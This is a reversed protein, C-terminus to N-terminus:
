KLGGGGLPPFDNGEKLIRGYHLGGPMLLGNRGSM